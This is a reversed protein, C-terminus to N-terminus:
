RSRRRTPPTGAIGRERGWIIAEARSHAGIKAYLSAVHNRVTNLKLGMEAAIAADKLGGCILGLAERERRTLEALGAQPRSERGHRLNAVKEAITRSFWTTDQMVAEIASMLDQERGRRETIDQLVMLICDQELLRDDAADPAARLHEASLLCDIVTGDAGRLRVELGRCSAAALAHDIAGAREAWLSLGSPTRGIVEAAAVGTLACFAANVDLFRRTDLAMLCTPVPALRFSKEFREKARRLAEEARRRPELDIFTFLMCADAGLELPQGAVMALKAGGGPLSLVVEMQPIPRGERLRALALERQAAQELVDLEYASTGIIQERRYGTMTLFGPNVKVYRFDALRCIVAPAPNANFTREFREEADVVATEDHLILVLSDPAGSEDRLVLGRLRLVAAVAGEANLREVVVDDFAAGAALRELPHPAPSPPRYRLTFRATHADITEGLAARDAVGYAALAAENAWVISRDPDILVLGEALAAIIEQLHGRSARPRPPEAM